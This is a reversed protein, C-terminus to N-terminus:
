CRPRATTAHMALRGVAREREDGDLAIDRLSERLNIMDRMEELSFGLPKMKKVLRHRDIDADTYLV